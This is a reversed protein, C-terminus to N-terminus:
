KNKDLWKSYEKPNASAAGDYHDRNTAKWDPSPPNCIGHVWNNKKMEQAHQEVKKLTKNFDQVAKERKAKCCPKFSEEDNCWGDSDTSYITEDKGISTQSDLPSIINDSCFSKPMDEWYPPIQYIPSENQLPSYKRFDDEAKKRKDEQENYFDEIMGSIEDMKSGLVEILEYESAEVWDNYTTNDSRVFQIKLYKGSPSVELLGAEVPEAMYRDEKVLLRHGIHEKKLKM